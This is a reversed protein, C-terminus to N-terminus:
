LLDMLDGHPLFRNTTNAKIWSVLDGPMAKRKKLVRVLAVVPSKAEAKWAPHRMEGLTFLRILSVIVADDLEAAAENWGPHQVLPALTNVQDQSLQVAYDEAVASGALEVAQALLDAAVPKQKANASFQSPDFTDVSM